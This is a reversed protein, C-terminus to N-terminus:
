SRGIALVLVALTVAGFVGALVDDMVVGAGGPLNEELWRVPGPKWVDYVRFLVFGTVVWGLSRAQGLALLPALTVLQGAIEDIVIRGDDETAWVRTMVDASWIALAITGAATVLYVPLALAALPWYLLVGVAAGATGSAFPSYGSGAGTAVVHALARV